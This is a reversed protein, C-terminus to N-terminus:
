RTLRYILVATRQILIPFTKLDIDEEPTHGGVGMAGLGDLCDTDAAVFSIDAAGRKGPDFAEIPPYGLDRSVSDLQQLLKLNGETPAMGPYGESFEITASTKPLNEKVIAEMKARANKLQEESIFRLDGDVTASQAIVNTKGFATGKSYEPDYTVETGGVIVGANFTLYKEGSLAERFRNLIRAAEFIAGAGMEENFILSSHGEVGTVKLIWGGIGRRAITGTHLGEAAEFGLSIDSRKGAEILDKRSISLPDGTMEEDGTFAVIISTNELAGLQQLAKLAYLAVIDGGKMDNVGQGLARDGKREFPQFKSEKEFVTDLHGILLLKKGQTGSREAFLHGARHVTQMPIWRTKFQLDDFEKKFIQGVQEVGEHNMTGSNINVVRELLRLAEPMNQNVQEVIQKEMPQLEAAGSISQTAFLLMLVIWVRRTGVLNQMANM